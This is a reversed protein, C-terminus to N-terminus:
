SHDFDIIFTILNLHISFHFCSLTQTCVFFQSHTNSGFFCCGENMMLSCFHNLAFFSCFQEIPQANLYHYYYYYYYLYLLTDTYGEVVCHMHM